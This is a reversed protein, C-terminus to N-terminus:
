QQPVPEDEEEAISVDVKDDEVPLVEGLFDCEFSRDEHDEKEVGEHIEVELAEVVEFLFVFVWLM